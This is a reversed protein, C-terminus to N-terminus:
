AETDARWGQSEELVTFQEIVHDTLGAITPTEFFARLELELGTLLQIKNIAKTVQVSQGGLEFFDDHVGIRDRGLVEAWVEAIFQEVETQPAVHEPRADPRDVGDPQTM